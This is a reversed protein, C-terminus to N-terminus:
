VESCAAGVVAGINSLCESHDDTVDILPWIPHVFPKLIEREFGQLLRPRASPLQRAGLGGGVPEDARRYSHGSNTCCRPGSFDGSGTPVPSLRPLFRAPRM